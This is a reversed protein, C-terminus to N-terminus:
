TIRSELAWEQDLTQVIAECVSKLSAYVIRSHGESDVADGIPDPGVSADVPYREGNVRKAHVTAYWHATFLNKRRAHIIGLVETNLADLSALDGEILMLLRTGKVLCYGPIPASEVEASMGDPFTLRRKM